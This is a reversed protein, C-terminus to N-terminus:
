PTVTIFILSGRVLVVCKLLRGDVTKGGIVYRYQGKEIKHRVITGYRIANQIDLTDFNREEMRELTHNSWTVAGKDWLFRVREMVKAYDLEDIFPVVNGM